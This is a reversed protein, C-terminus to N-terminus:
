FSLQGQDVTKGRGLVSGKSARKGLLKEPVVSYKGLKIKERLHCLLRCEALGEASMLMVGAGKSLSKVEALPYVLGRGDRSLLALHLPADADCVPLSLLLPTTGTDLTLLEKGAKRNSYLAQGTCVFGKAASSAVLFRDEQTGCAFVAPKHGSPLEMLATIPIGDGKGGPIQAVSISYARGQTDLVFLWATTRTDFAHLLADGSKFPLSSPDDIRGQRTRVFGQKSVILTVAEDVVKSVDSRTVVEASQILTRRADSYTAADKDIEKIIANRLLKDSNLLRALSAMSTQLKKLEQELKIHELRALQRLRIELIDNAQIDSLGFRVMLESKPEDSNRIVEIVADIHLLVLLRGEIIHARESAKRHEFACRRGFALV